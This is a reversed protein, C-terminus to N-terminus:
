PLPPAIPCTAPLDYHTVIAVQTVAGGSASYARVSIKTGGQKIPVFSFAAYNGLNRAEVAVDTIVAAAPVGWEAEDYPWTRGGGGEAAYYLGQQGRKVAKEEGSGSVAPLRSDDLSNYFTLGHRWECHNIAQVQGSIPENKNKPPKPDLTVSDTDGPTNVALSMESTPRPVTVSAGGMVISSPLGKIKVQSPSWTLKIKASQQFKPRWNLGLVIDTDTVSEIWMHLGTDRLVGNICATYNKSSQPNLTQIAVTRGLDTSKKENRSDFLKQRSEDYDGYTAGIPVGYVVANAGADHRVQEYNDKTVLTSLEYREADTSTDNWTDM